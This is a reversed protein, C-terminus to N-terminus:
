AAMAKKKEWYRAKARERDRIAQREKAVASAAEAAKICRENLLTLLRGQVAEADGLKLLASLEVPNQGGVQKNNANM